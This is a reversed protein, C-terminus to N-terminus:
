DLVPTERKTVRFIVFEFKSGWEAQRQDRYAKAAEIEDEEFSSMRTWGYPGKGKLRRKLQLYSKELSVVRQVGLDRPAQKTSTPKPPM